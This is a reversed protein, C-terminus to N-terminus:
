TSPILTANKQIIKTPLPDGKINRLALPVVWFGLTVSFFPAASWSAFFRNIATAMSAISLREQSRGAYIKGSRIRRLITSRPLKKFIILRTARFDLLRHWRCWDISIGTPKRQYGAISVWVLLARTTSNLPDVAGGNIFLHLLAHQINILSIRPAGVGTVFSSIHFSRRADITLLQPQLDSSFFFFFFDFKTSGMDIVFALHSFITSHRDDWFM